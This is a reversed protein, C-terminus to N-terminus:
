NKENIARKLEEGLRVSLRVRSPIVYEKKDVGSKFKYSPKKKPEMIMFNRNIITFGRSLYSIITKREMGLIDMVFAPDLGMRISIAEAIDKQHIEKRM